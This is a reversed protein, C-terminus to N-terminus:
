KRTANSTNYGMYGLQTATLTRMSPSNTDLCKWQLPFPAVTRYIVAQHFLGCSNFSLYKYGVSEEGERSKKKDEETEGPLDNESM